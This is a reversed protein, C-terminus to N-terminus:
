AKGYEECPYLSTVPHRRRYDVIYCRSATFRVGYGDAQRCGKENLISNAQTRRSRESHWIDRLGAPPLDSRDSRFFDLLMIERFNEMDRAPVHREAFELLYDYQRVSSLKAYILHNHMYFEALAEYMRFAGTFYRELVPMTGAFRGSNYYRELVDEVGKLKILEDSSIYKNYLIEYPPHPSFVYGHRQILGNMPAGALLKLFGLQLQHPRVAYVDNFSQQFREYGEYPLGAILDAHVNINQRSLIQKLNYFIKDPPMSRGCAELARPDTSQVGAELQILGDPLEAMLELFERDFLDAGVEFHFVTQFPRGNKLAKKYANWIHHLVSEGQRSSM